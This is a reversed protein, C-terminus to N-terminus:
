AAEEALKPIWLITPENYARQLILYTHPHWGTEEIVDYCDVGLYHAMTREACAGRSKEWGPLFAIGEAETVRALDWRFMRVLMDQPVEQVDFDFGIERDHDVPNAVEHGSARLASAVRDFAESNHRPYGRMPGALYLKM